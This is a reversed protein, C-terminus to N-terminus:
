EAYVAREFEVGFLLGRADTLKSLAYVFEGDIKINM